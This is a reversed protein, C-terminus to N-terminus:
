LLCRADPPSRRQAFPWRGSGNILSCRMFMM